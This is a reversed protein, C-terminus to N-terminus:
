KRGIRVEVTIPDPKVRILPDEIDLESSEQFTTQRGSVDIDTTEISEVKMVHSAPGDIVISEPTVIAKQVEFGARPSGILRPYIRVSQSKRPEVNLRVRAPLVQVVEVGVPARVLEPSLPLVKGQGMSVGSMDIAISLADPTVTRVLSSPGRLRIEIPQTTEGYVETEPPINRIELPVSKAIESTPIRAVEAWLITALLLSILKLHWNHLLLDKM